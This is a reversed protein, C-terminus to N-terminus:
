CHFDRRDQRWHVMMFGGGGIGSFNPEVVNLAFSIAAAADIANGGKELMQAGAEAALPHSVSVVGKNDRAVGPFDPRGRDKDKDKDRDGDDHDDNDRANAQIQGTWERADLAPAAIALLGAAALLAALLSSSLTRNKPKM